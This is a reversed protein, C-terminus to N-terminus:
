EERWVRGGLMQTLPPYARRVALVLPIGVAGGVVNQLINWPLELLAAGWGALVSGGLLYLGCMVVTGALWAVIMARQGRGQGLWGAAFGELGHALFSIAAWQPYGGMLDGLATGVGGIILAWPGFAFASFYIVVDSFNFYGGTATIPIRVITTFVFTVAIMVAIIAIAL